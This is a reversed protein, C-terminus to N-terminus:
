QETDEQSNTDNSSSLAEASVNLAAALKRVTSIRASSRGTELRSISATTMGALEALDAQTLLRQLRISRLNPLDM